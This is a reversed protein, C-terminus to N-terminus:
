DNKKINSWRRKKETSWIWVSELSIRQRGTKDAGRSNFLCKIISPWRTRSRRATNATPSHVCPSRLIPLSLLSIVGAPKKTRNEKSSSLLTWKLQKLQSRPENWQPVRGVNDLFRCLKVVGDCYLVIFDTKSKISSCRINFICLYNETDYLEEYKWYQVALKPLKIFTELHEESDPPISFRDLGYHYSSHGSACKSSSIVRSPWDSASGHIAYECAKAGTRDPHTKRHKQM